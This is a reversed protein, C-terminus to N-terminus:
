RGLNVREHGAETLSVFEVRRASIRGRILGAGKLARLYAGSVEEGEGNLFPVHDKILRVWTLEANAKLGALIEEVVLGDIDIEEAGRARARKVEDEAAEVLRLLRKPYSEEFIHEPCVPKRERTYEGCVACRVTPARDVRVKEQVALGRM